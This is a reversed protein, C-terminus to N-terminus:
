RPPKAPRLICPRRPVPLKPRHSPLKTSLLDVGKIQEVIRPLYATDSCYAYARPPEAPTTLRENPVVTGDETVFDEGNKIRNILYVPVEYFDIM